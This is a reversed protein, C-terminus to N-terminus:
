IEKSAQTLKSVGQINLNFNGCNNGPAVLRPTLLSPSAQVTTPEVNVIPKQTTLKTVSKSQTPISTSSYTPKTCEGNQIVM